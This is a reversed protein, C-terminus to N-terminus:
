MPRGYSYIAFRLVADCTEHQDQNWERSIWVTDPRSWAADPRNRTAKLLVRKHDNNLIVQILQCGWNFRSSKAAANPQPLTKSGVHGQQHCSTSETYLSSSRTRRLQM